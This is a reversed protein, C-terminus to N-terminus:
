RLLDPVTREFTLFDLKSELAEFHASLAGDISIVKTWGSSLFAPTAFYQFPGFPREVDLGNIHQTALDRSMINGHIKEQCRRALSIIRIRYKLVVFVSM